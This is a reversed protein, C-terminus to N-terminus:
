ARRKLKTIDLDVFNEFDIIVDEVKTSDTFMYYDYLLAKLQEFKEKNM